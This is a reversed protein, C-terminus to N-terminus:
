DSPNLIHHMGGIFNKKPHFHYVSREFEVNSGVVKEQSLVGVLSPKIEIELNTSIATLHRRGQPKLLQNHIVITLSSLVLISFFLGAVVKSLRGTPIGTSKPWKELGNYTVFPTFFPFAM